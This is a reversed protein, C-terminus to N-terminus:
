GKLLGPLKVINRVIVLAEARTLRNARDTGISRGEDFYCYAFRKGEADEVWYASESEGITWPLPFRRIEPM